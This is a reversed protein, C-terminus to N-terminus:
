VQENSRSANPFGLRGCFSCFNERGVVAFSLAAVSPSAIVAAKNTKILDEAVEMLENIKINPTGIPNKLLSIFESIIKNVKAPLAKSGGFVNSSRIDRLIKEEYSENKLADLIHRHSM